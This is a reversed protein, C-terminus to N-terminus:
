RAVRLRRPKLETVRFGFLRATNALIYLEDDVVVPKGYAGNRIYRFHMVDGNDPDALYLRDVTSMVALYNKGMTAAVDPTEFDQQWLMSGEDPDVAALKGGGTVFLKGGTADVDNAGDVHVQWEIEGSAANVAHLTGDATVTLLKGGEVLLTADVDFFRERRSGLLSSWRVTGDNKNYAVLTGDAHGVIMTQEFSVPRAAGHVSFGWGKERPDSHWREDGTAAALAFVRGSATTAYVAGDVILPAATVEDDLKTRWKETGTETDFAYVYGELDGVAVIGQDYAAQTHIGGETKVMWRKQPVPHLDIAYLKGADVGVYLRREVVLPTAFQYPRRFGTRDLKVIRRYDLQFRRLSRFAKLHALRKPQMLSEWSLVHRKYWLRAEAPRPIVAMVGIVMVLFFFKM